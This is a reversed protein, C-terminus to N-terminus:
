NLQKMGELGEVFEVCKMGIYGTDVVLTNGPSIPLKLHIIRM